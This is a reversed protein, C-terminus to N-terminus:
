TLYNRASIGSNTPYGKAFDYFSIGHPTFLNVHGDELLLTLESLIKFLQFSSTEPNVKARYVEHLSDWNIKKITFFSYQRDFSEWLVEFNSVPDNAPEDGFMLDECATSALTILVILLTTRKM